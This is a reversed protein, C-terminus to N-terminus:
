GPMSSGRGAPCGTVTSVRLPEAQDAMSDAIESAAENMRLSTVQATWALIEGKGLSPWTAATAAISAPSIDRGFRCHMRPGCGRSCCGSTLGAPLHLRLLVDAAAHDPRSGGGVGAEVLPGSRRRGRRVCRRTGAIMGLGAQTAPPGASSSSDAGCPRRRGGDGASGRVILEGGTMGRKIASRPRAQARAVADGVIDLTGGALALGAERGVNGEVVVEGEILGAGLRDALDLKGM